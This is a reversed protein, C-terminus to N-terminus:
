RGVVLVGAPMFDDRVGADSEAAVEVDYTHHATGRKFAVPLQLTVSPGTPGSGITKAGAVDLRALSGHLIQPSDAVVPPGCRAKEAHRDRHGMWRESDDDDDSDDRGHCLQVTNASEVWRIWLAIKRTGRQVVRLEMTKLDRWVGNTVTWGFRYQLWEGAKVTANDPVLTPTGTFLPQFDLISGQGDSLSGVNIGGTLDIFFTETPEDFSDFCITVGLTESQDGPAFILTGSGSFYDPPGGGGIVRLGCAGPTALATGNRTVWNVRVEFGPHPHSLTVTFTATKSGSLPERVTVANASASPPVDDDFIHGFGFCESGSCVANVPNTLM